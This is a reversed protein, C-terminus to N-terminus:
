FLLLFDQKVKDILDKLKQAKTLMESQCLSLENHCTKFDAKVRSLLVASRYFLAASRITHIDEIHQQRKRIYATRLDLTRHKRHKSSQYIVQCIECYRRIVKSSHRVNTNEKKIFNLVECYSVVNHNTTQINQVHIEKCQPCLKFRCSVCFYVADGPCKFCDYVKYITSATEM